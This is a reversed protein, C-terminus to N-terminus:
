FPINDESEPQTAQVAPKPASNGAKWNGIIPGKEGANRAEKPIGQVVYGDNGYQDPGERNEFLVLDLYKGSKGPFIYKKEIKTVNINATIPM